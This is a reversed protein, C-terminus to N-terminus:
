QWITRCTKWEDAWHRLNELIKQVPAAPTAAESVAKLVVPVPTEELLAMLHPHFHVPARGSRLAFALAEPTIIERYSTSISRAAVDLGSQIANM